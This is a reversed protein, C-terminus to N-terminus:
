HLHILAQQRALQEADVPHRGRYFARLEDLAAGVEHPFLRLLQGLEHQVATTPAFPLRQFLGVLWSAWQANANPANSMRTVASTLQQMLEETLPDGGALRQEVETKARAMLRDADEARERAYARDIMELLLGLEWGAEDIKTTATEEMWEGGGCSPCSSADASHPMRCRACHRLFGTTRHTLEGGNLVLFVFEQTGIRIRDGNRLVVRDQTPQGNVKVGNRSNLDSVTVRGAEVDFRAHQRSVLPDEITIQCESSRGVYTTGPRLDLEQLLFRM